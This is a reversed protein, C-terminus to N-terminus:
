SAGPLWRTAAAPLGDTASREVTNGVVNVDAQTTGSADVAIGSAAGAM